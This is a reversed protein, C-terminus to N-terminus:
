QFGLNVWVSQSSVEMPGYESIQATDAADRGYGIIVRNGKPNEQTADFTYWRGGVFAEFWAHLDMPDLQYLYGFVMRAPINLARCLTIGLHAFDRCVGARSKETEVASTSGTSVGYKYEINKSIWQRIAEVQDYGPAAGGTYSAATDTFLDSQCYRSPLLYRLVSDPLDEVPTPPTGPAIDMVDSVDVTGMFTINTTGPSLVTRQCFNGFEDTFDQLCVQPYVTMVSSTVQQGAGTQPQLMLSLPVRDQAELTINCGINLIM